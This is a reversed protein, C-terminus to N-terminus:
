RNIEKFSSFIDILCRFFMWYFVFNLISLIAYEPDFDLVVYPTLLFLGENCGQPLFFRSFRVNCISRYSNCFSNLVLFSFFIGQLSINKELTM